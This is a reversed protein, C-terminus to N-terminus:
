ATAKAATLNALEDALALLARMEPTEVKAPRPTLRLVVALLAHAVQAPSPQWKETQMAKTLAELQQWEQESLSVAKPNNAAEEKAKHQDRSYQYLSRGRIYRSLPSGGQTIPIGPLEAGLAAAVEDPDLRPVDPEVVRIRTVKSKPSLKAKSM